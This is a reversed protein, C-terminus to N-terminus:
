LELSSLFGKEKASLLFLNAIACAVSCPRSISTASMIMWTCSVILPHSRKARESCWCWWRSSSALILMCGRGCLGCIDMFHCCAHALSTRMQDVQTVYIHVINLLQNISCAYTLLILPWPNIKIKQLNTTVSHLIDMSFLEIRVAILRYFHRRRCWTNTYPESRPEM